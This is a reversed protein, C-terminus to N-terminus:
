WSTRHPCAPVSTRNRSPRGNLTELDNDVVPLRASDQAAIRGVGRMPKARLRNHAVPGMLSASRLARPVVGRTRPPVFLPRNNLSSGFSPSKSPMRSTGMVFSLTSTETHHLVDIIRRGDRIRPGHGESGDHGVLASPNVCLPYWGFVSHPM